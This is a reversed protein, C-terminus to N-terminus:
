QLALLVISKSPMEILLDDGQKTAGNFNSPRVVPPHDFDNIDNFKGATLVQGTVRQFKIGALSARVSIGRAPDLNVLTIHVIGTSDRSASANVATLHQEGYVYNPSSVEVTLSRANQHGQYLDFVYYTPTLVLKDGQTLVLSQLVNAIQALNAMRVRDAHNNFINLTSAASLADRLSNQQYFYSASNEDGVVMGWEDVILAVKKGPDYRDMIAEHGKIIQDMRLASKLSSFYQAEGFSTAFDATRGGAESYYHVGIGQLWRPSVHSMLTETWNYDDDGAGSAIRMIPSGPYERCYNAFTRYKATYTEPTMRGGCGWSENGIGWYKVHYSSPHGNAARLLSMDSTGAYNCYEIWSELEEPTGTGVNGALYPECGILSCLKLFEDTGFSNDESVMGWMINITKARSKLPGVGDKWHYNDAFCGGPWRLLPIHIKQLAEVVDMRIKNDKFLGDYVCRGLHEAFQGYINCNIVPGGTDRIILQATSISTGSNQAYCFTGALLILPLLFTAKNM